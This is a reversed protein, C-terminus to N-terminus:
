LEMGGFSSIVEDEKEEHRETYQRYAEARARSAALESERTARSQRGFEHTRASLSLDSVAKTSALCKKCKGLPIGPARAHEDCYCIKCRLCAVTGVRNCSRCGFNDDDLVQCSAQHEMQDDACLWKACSVCKFFRGGVRSLPRSCEVCEAGDLPCPCSHEVICKRSHCVWAECFDCIAGVFEVGTVNRTHKCGPLCDAGQCKIRGCQACQPLRQLASCFYCFARNKQRRQCHDCVMEANCPLEAIDVERTAEERQRQKRRELKKRAGTKKKVM